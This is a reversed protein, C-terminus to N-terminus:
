SSPLYIVSHFSDYNGSRLSVQALIFFRFLLEFREWLIFSNIRKCKIEIFSSFTKLVEEHFFSGFYLDLTIRSSYVYLLFSIVTGISDSCPIRISINLDIIFVGEILKSYGINSFVNKNARIEFTRLIYFEELLFSNSINETNLSRFIVNWM